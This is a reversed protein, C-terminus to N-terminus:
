KQAKSREKRQIKLISLLDASNPYQQAQNPYRFNIFEWQSNKHLMEPVVDPVSGKKGSCIAYVNVLYTDGKQTISGVEYHECPDQTNLFPDFDLGVIEGPAKAQAAYDEKLAAALQPGFVSSREKLAIESAPVSSDSLAKPVYWAYFGQVFAYLSEREGSATTQGRLGTSLALCVMVCCVTIRSIKM